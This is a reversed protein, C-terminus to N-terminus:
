YVEDHRGIDLLVLVEQSTEPDGEIAFVIHCDYGCSCAWLESLKGSLKHSHLSSAYVDAQMQRLTEEMRDQLRRDRRVYRSYAKKFKPTLVLARM